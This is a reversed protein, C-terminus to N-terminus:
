KRIKYSIDNVKIVMNNELTEISLLPSMDEIPPPLIGDKTLIGKVKPVLDQEPNMYCELIAYGKHNLFDEISNNKTNFYPIEFADAIRKFNPLSVGTDANVGTYRGNFLMKQTHKIFLYGENNFIIIKIPLKYGVITQLEQLNMMMSGDGDFLIVNRDKDAFSAGIASPLGNGMEGLGNSAFVTQGNKIELSQHCSPLPTGQGIVIIDDNKLLKSINNIFVYSNDHKLNDELHCKEVLPFNKKYTLCQQYWENKHYSIDELLLKNIFDKCDCNITIDYRSYKKLEGEDNNIMVIKAEPAFNNINYGTQPLALRSGLVILLDCNQIVFNACRQGYLGPCGFNYDHDFSLNDIGSWSLVVPIKLKEILQKLEKQSKSLRVGHGALIVPRVSNKILDVINSINYDEAPNLPLKYKILDEKNLIASQMDMPIDIWVPGPRGNTTIHYSEELSSLLQSKNKIITSFKVIDKVMKSVNFGQTGLMRLHSHENVYKTSEQGSIVICPISDAWNCLVGTIANSAGAGATVIAVTVKGTTRYYSGAAMVVAQEHHMYIVKTYGKRAISDFIYSNASGIIGFVTQIEKEELFDAILDAALYDNKNYKVM